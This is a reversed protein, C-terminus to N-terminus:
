LLEELKQELSAGRLGIDIINGKADVLVTYPISNFQYISTLPTNWGKLDSVHNPWILGDAAIAAKWKDAETDLSVSFITFGKNKYKNYLKVVNPNEKRCPGCWSAWFDILVVKGKLSSLKIEKGEPTTLAIEPAPKSGSRLLQYENFGAEIQRTQEQLTATIPSDPYKKGYADSMAKLVQVNEEPYDTFGNMPMLSNSLIINFTSGPNKAIYSRAFDDMPQRIAMYRKILEDQSVTGQLQMLEQQGESFANVLTMYEAYAKGWDVGTIKTETLFGQVSTEVRINDGTTMTMPLANEPSEGLRLQYIGMGPINGEMRFAGDEQIAVKEVEIVGKESVTELYINMGSAGLVKGEVTFNDEQVTEEVTQEEANDSCAGLLTFLMLLPFIFQKKM